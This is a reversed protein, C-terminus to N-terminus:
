GKLKELGDLVRKEMSNLEEKFDEMRKIKEDIMTKEKRLSSLINELKVKREERDATSRYESRQQDLTTRYELFQQLEALSFGLAEKVLLIKKLTEVDEESYIRIGGSTREPARILGIDEYYRIARKTLGTQNAVDEIKLINM